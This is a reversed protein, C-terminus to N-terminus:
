QNGEEDGFFLPDKPNEVELPIEQAPLDISNEPDCDHVVDGLFMARYDVEIQERQDCYAGGRNMICKANLTAYIDCAHLRAEEKHKKSEEMERNMDSEMQAVTPSAPLLQIVIAVVALTVLVIGITSLAKKMHIQLPFFNM